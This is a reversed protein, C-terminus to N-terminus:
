GDAHLHFSQFFIHQLTLQELAVSPLHPQRGFALHQQAIRSPDELQVALDEIGQTLGVHDARHSDTRRVIIHHPKERPDQAPKGLGIRQDLDFHM